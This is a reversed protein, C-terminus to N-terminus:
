TTENNEEKPPTWGLRILADRVMQEKTNIIQRVVKGTWDDYETIQITAAQLDLTTQLQHTGIDVQVVIRNVYDIIDQVCKWKKVDKDPIDLQFEEEIALLMYIEDLSDLGLEEFTKEPRIKTIDINCENAIIKLITEENKKRRM